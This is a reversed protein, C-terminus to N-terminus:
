RAIALGSSVDSHNRPPTGKKFGTIRVLANELAAAAEPAGKEGTLVSHVAEIYADTVDQYEKGTVTAPRSVTGSRFAQSLLTFRPNPELVEPLEYLDQLTPPESLM